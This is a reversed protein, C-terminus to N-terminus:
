FFLMRSSFFTNIEIKPAPGRRALCLIIKGIPSNQWIKQVRFFNSLVDRLSDLLSVLSLGVGHASDFDM